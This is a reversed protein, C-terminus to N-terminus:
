RHDPVMLNAEEAVMDVAVVVMGAEEVIVVEMDTETMVVVVEAAEVVETPDMLHHDEGLDVVMLTTTCYLIM